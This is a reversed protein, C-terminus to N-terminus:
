TSYMGFKINLMKYLYKNKSYINPRWIGIQQSNSEMKEKPQSECQRNQICITSFGGFDQMSDAGM